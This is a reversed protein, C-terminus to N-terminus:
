ESSYIVKIEKETKNGAVDTAAIKIKNDGNQLSLRYSFNGNGDTIAWLGNITVKADPDTTGKIEAANQDGSFSQNDSPSAINLSPFASKFTITLPQSFESERNDVIAKTKIVNEGSKITEKFSFRGDNQTKATAILSGNIYLNITQKKSAAGSVVINASATAQPLSDLVPPAIFSFNQVKTEEKGQSGSLFLSLNVLFPIAFKFVLFVILIIGLISLVLNKRTKQEIRKSLRSRVMFNDLQIM